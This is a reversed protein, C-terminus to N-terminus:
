YIKKKRSLDFIYKKMLYESKKQNMKIDRLKNEFKDKYRVMQNKLMIYKDGPREEFLNEEFCGDPNEIVFILRDIRSSRQLVEYKKISDKIGKLWKNTAYNSSTKNMFLKKSSTPDKNTLTIKRSKSLSYHKNNHSHETLRTSLYPLINDKNLNIDNINMIKINNMYTPYKNSEKKQHSNLLNQFYDKKNTTKMFNLKNKLLIRENGETKLQERFKISKINFIKKTEEIKDKSNILDTIKEETINHYKKMEPIDKFNKFINKVKDNSNVPKDTNFDNIKSTNSKDKNKKELLHKFKTKKLIQILLNKNYKLRSASKNDKRNKTENTSNAKQNKNNDNPNILKLMMKNETM